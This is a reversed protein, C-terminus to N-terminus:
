LPQRNECNEVQNYDFVRRPQQATEQRPLSELHPAPFVSNVFRDHGYYKAETDSATYKAIADSGGTWSIEPWYEDTTEDAGGM